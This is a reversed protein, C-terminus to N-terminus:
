RPLHSHHPQIYGGKSMKNDISSPSTPLPSTSHITSSSPTWKTTVSSASASREDDVKQVEEEVVESLALQAEPTQMGASFTRNRSGDEGNVIKTDPINMAGARQGDVDDVAAVTVANTVNTNNMGSTPLNSSPAAERKNAKQQERTNIRRPLRSHHLQQQISSAENWWRPSVAAAAAPIPNARSGLDVWDQGHSVKTSITTVAPVPLTTTPSTSLAMANNLTSSRLLAEKDSALEVELRGESLAHGHGESDDVSLSQTEALTDRELNPLPATKSRERTIRLRPQERTRTM